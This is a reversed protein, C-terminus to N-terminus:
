LLESEHDSESCKQLHKLRYELKRNQTELEEIEKSTANNVAHELKQVENELADLAGSQISM